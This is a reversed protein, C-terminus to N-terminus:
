KHILREKETVSESEVQSAFLLWERHRGCPSCSFYHKLLSSVYHSYNAQFLPKFYLSRICAGHKQVIQFMWFSYQILHNINRFCNEIFLNLQNMMMFVTKNTLSKVIHVNTHTVFRNYIYLTYIYIYIYIYIYM